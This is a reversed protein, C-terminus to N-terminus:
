NKEPLRIKSGNKRKIKGTTTAENPILRDLFDGLLHSDDLTLPIQTDPNKPM